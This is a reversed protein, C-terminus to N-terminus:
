VALHLSVLSRPCADVRRRPRAKSDLRRRQERAWLTTLALRTPARSLHNQNALGATALVAAKVRSSVGGELSARRMFDDRLPKWAALLTPPALTVTILLDLEMATTLVMLKQRASQDKRGHKEMTERWEFESVVRKIVPQVLLGVAFSLCSLAVLM